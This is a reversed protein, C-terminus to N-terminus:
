SAEMELQCQSAGGNVEIWFVVYQTQKHTFWVVYQTHTDIDYIM